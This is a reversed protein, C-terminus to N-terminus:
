LIRVRKSMMIWIVAFYYNRGSKDIFSKTLNGRFGKNDAGKM